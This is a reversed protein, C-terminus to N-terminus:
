GASFEEPLPDAPAEEPEPAAGLIPYLARLDSIIHDARMGAPLPAGGPNFWVCPLGYENAGRIDSTLSDGIVLANDRRIGPIRSFVYDFYAPSPKGCGAEESIFADTIYPRLASQELRSRQVSAVANTILYLRRTKALTRCLSEAHPILRTNRGLGELHDRNCREPDRDLGLFALYRRFREVTVFEKTCLGRDFSEWLEANIARFRAYHEASFPLDNRACTGAFAEREGSSFDFLTNDADFLLFPYRIM